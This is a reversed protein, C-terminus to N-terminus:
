RSPGGLAAFPVIETFGRHRVQNPDAGREVIRAHTVRFGQRRILATVAMMYELEEEVNLVWALDAGARTMRHVPVSLKCAPSPHEVRLVSDRYPLYTLFAGDVQSDYLKGRGDGPMVLGLEEFADFDAPDLGRGAFFAPDLRVVFDKMVYRALQAFRAVDDAGLSALRDMAPRSVTGPRLIEHALLRAWTNQLEPSTVDQALTLFRLLWGSDLGAEDVPGVVLSTAAALIERLNDRRLTEAGAALRDVAIGAVTADPETSPAPLGTAARTGELVPSPFDEQVSALLKRLALM